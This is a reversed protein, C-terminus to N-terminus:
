ALVNLDLHFENFLKEKATAGAAEPLAAETVTQTTPRGHQLISVHPV